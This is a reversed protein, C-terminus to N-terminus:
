KEKDEVVWKKGDQEIVDYREYIDQLSVSKDITVEYRYRGDTSEVKIEDSVLLFIWCIFTLIACFLGLMTLDNSLCVGTLALFVIFLVFSVIVGEALWDPRVMVPTKNLIEIGEM